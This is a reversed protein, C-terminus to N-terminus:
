LYHVSIIILFAIILGIAIGYLVGILFIENNTLENM